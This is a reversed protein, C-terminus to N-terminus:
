NEWQAKEAREKDQRTLGLPHQLSKEQLKKVKICNKLFHTTTVATDVFLKRNDKIKLIRKLDGHPNEKTKINPDRPCHEISHGKEKCCMCRVHKLQQKEDEEKKDDDFDDDEEKSEHSQYKCGPQNVARSGCCWWMEGSFVSQHTRCSWKFNENERYEMNCKKCTKLGVDVRGKKSKLKQLRQKLKINEENLDDNQKSQQMLDEIRQDAEQTLLKIQEQLKTITDKSQATVIAKERELRIKCDSLDKVEVSYTDRAKMADHLEFALGEKQKDLAKATRQHQDLKFVLKEEM